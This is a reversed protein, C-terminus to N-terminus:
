FSTITIYFIIKRTPALIGVQLGMPYSITQFGEQNYVGM